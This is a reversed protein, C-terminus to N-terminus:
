CGVDLRDIVEGAASVFLTDIKTCVLDLHFRTHGGLGLGFHVGPHRENPFFNENVLVACCENAGFGIEHVKRYREDERLLTELAQQATGPIGGVTRLEVVIGGKINAIVPQECLPSMITFLRLAEDMETSRSGRHVIPMGQLVVEGDLSFGQDLSFGGSPDTLASLEGTPLVTQQGFDLPGLLSFWHRAQHHHFTAETGYCTSRFLIYSATDLSSLLRREVVIQREYNTSLVLGLMRELAAPFFPTSFYSIAALKVGKMEQPSYHEFEDEAIWLVSITGARFRRLLGARSEPGTWCYEELACIGDPKPTLAARVSPSTVLLFVQGLDGGFLPLFHHPYIPFPM